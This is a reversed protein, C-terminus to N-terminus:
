RGFYQNVGLLLGTAIKTLTQDSHDSAKDGLEIDISPITSYSTQTLDIEMSGNGNIKRGVSRLGNILCEGFLDSKAWTSAVPEMAKYTLNNPVKCYFAGKDSTTSDWHIAIHCNAYNNALVTRAVNDLQVDTAERIMLVNYGSNLLLTKLILAEKLTVSAESTGDKFSMGSSIATSKVSGAAMTGGTVKPSGDPHSLTKYKEGGVTGHGANVCVTIGNANAATNTYLMAAGTHIASYNAYPLNDTLIVPTAITNPTVTGTTGAAAISTGAGTSSQTAAYIEAPASLLLSSAALLSIIVNSVKNKM